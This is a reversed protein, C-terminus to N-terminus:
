TLKEPEFDILFDDPVLKFLKDKLHVNNIKLILNYKFINRTKRPFAPLIASVELDKFENKIKKALQDLLYYAKSQSKDQSIIKAIQSFPPYNLKQRTEMETKYFSNIDNNVISQLVLNNSNSNQIIIESANNLRAVALVLAQFVKEQARFDPQNIFQDFNIIGLLGIKSWDLKNFIYETGIIITGGTILEKQISDKSYIKIEVLPFKEKVQQYVKEVGGGKFKIQPGSCQPCLPPTDISFGCQHCHLQGTKEYYILSTQCAPCTFVYNCDQCVVFNALGKRNHWLFIKKHLLLNKEIDEVLATSIFSYNGSEREQKLDVLKINTSQLAPKPATHSTIQHFYTELSPAATSLHLPVDHNQALWTALLRADYRPNIDSQKHNWDQEEDIIIAGLNTFPLLVSIKTGIIIKKHGAILEQWLKFVQTTNLGSHFIAAKTELKLDSLIKKTLTIEPTLILLQRNRNQIIIKKYYKNRQIVSRWWLLKIANKKTKIKKNKIVAIEIANNKTKSPIKPLLSKLLTNVSSGYYAGTQEILKIQENTVLTQPYLIKIINKLKQTTPKNKKTNVVLGAALRGNFNIAVIQGIKIQDVLDPPVAYSFFVPLSRPLKLAPIVDIYM